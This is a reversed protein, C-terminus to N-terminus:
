RRRKMAFRPDNVRDFMWAHDVHERRAAALASGIEHHLLQGARWQARADVMTRRHLTAFRDLDQELEDIDQARGVLLADNM